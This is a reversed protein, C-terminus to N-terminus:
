RGSGAASGAVDPGIGFSLVGRRPLLAFMREPAASLILLASPWFRHRGGVDVPQWRVGSDTSRVLGGFQSAFVVGPESPHFLVHSVTGGDLGERVPIWSACRDMSRFLGRSTAALAINEAAPDVALGYWAPSEPLAGCKKWDLETDEGVFAGASTVVAIAKEGSRQMFDVRSAGGGL